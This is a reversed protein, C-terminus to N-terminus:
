SNNINQTLENLSSCLFWSDFHIFLLFTQCTKKLQQLNMKRWKILQKVELGCENKRLFELWVNLITEVCLAYFGVALWVKKRLYSRGYESLLLLRRFFSAWRVTLSLALCCSTFKKIHTKTVPTGANLKNSPNNQQHSILFILPTFKNGSCCVSTIYSHPNGQRLRPVSSEAWNVLRLAHSRRPIHGHPCGGGPVVFCYTM